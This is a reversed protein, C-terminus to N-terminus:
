LSVTTDALEGDAVVAIRAKQGKKLKLESLPVSVIMRSGDVRMKAGTKQTMNDSNRTVTGM